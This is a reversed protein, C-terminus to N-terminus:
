SYASARQITQSQLLWLLACFVNFLPAFLFLFLFLFTCLSLLSHSIALVQALTACWLSNPILTSITTSPRTLLALDMMRNLFPRLQLLPLHPWCIGMHLLFILLLHHPFLLCPKKLLLLPTKSTTLTKFNKRLTLAVRKSSLIVKLWSTLIPRLEEDSIDIGIALSKLSLRGGQRHGYSVSFLFNFCIGAYKSCYATHLM